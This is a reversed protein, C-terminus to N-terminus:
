GTKRGVFVRGDPAYAFSPPVGGHGADVGSLVPVTTFRERRPRARLRCIRVDPGNGDRGRADDVGVPSFLATGTTGGWGARRGTM